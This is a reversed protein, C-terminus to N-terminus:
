RDKKLLTNRIGAIQRLHNVDHGALMQVMKEVTEKGREEHMGYRQLGKSSLKKLLSVNTNRLASFLSIKENCNAEEYYLAGAWKDQDYAQLPNGSQAIAM